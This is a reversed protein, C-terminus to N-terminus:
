ARGLDIMQKITEPGPKVRARISRALDVLSLKDGSSDPAPLKTVSALKLGNQSIYFIEGPVAQALLLGLQRQAEELTVDTKM